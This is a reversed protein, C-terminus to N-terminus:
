FIIASSLAGFIALMSSKTLSNVLVFEGGVVGGTEIGTGSIGLGFNVAGERDKGAIGLGDGAGIGIDALGEVGEDMGGPTPPGTFSYWDEMLVIFSSIEVM